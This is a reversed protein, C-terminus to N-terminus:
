DNRIIYFGKPSMHCNNSGSERILINTNTFWRHVYRKGHTGWVQSTSKFKKTISTNHAELWLNLQCWCRYGIIIYIHRPCKSNILAILVSLSCYVQCKIFHPFLSNQTLNVWVSRRVCIPLAWRDCMCFTM